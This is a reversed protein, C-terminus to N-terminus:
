FLYHCIPSQTFDVALFVKQRYKWSLDKERKDLNVRKFHVKTELEALGIILSSTLPQTEINPVTYVIKNRWILWM